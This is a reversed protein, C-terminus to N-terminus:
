REWTIGVNVGLVFMVFLATFWRETAVLYVLLIVQASFWLPPGV